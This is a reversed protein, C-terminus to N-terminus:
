PTANPTTTHLHYPMHLYSLHPATPMDAAAYRRVRGEKRREKKGEACFFFACARGNHHKAHAFTALANAGAAYLCANAGEGGARGCLAPCTHYAPSAALLPLPCPPKGPTILIDCCARQANVGGTHAHALHRSSPRVALPPTSTTPTTTTVGGVCPGCSPSLRGGALAHGDARAHHPACAAQGRCTRQAPRPLCTWAPGHLLRPNLEGRGPSASSYAAPPPYYLNLSVYRRLFHRAWYSRYIYLLRARPHPLHAATALTRWTSRRRLRPALTRLPYHPTTSTWGALLDMDSGAARPSGTSASIVARGAEAPTFHPAPASPGPSHLFFFFLNASSLPTYAV